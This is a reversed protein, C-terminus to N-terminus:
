MWAQTDSEAGGFRFEASGFRVDDDVYANNFAYWAVVDDIILRFHV